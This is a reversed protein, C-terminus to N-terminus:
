VVQRVILKWEDKANADHRYTAEGDTFDATVHDIIWDAPALGPLGAKRLDHLLAEKTGKGEHQGFRHTLTWVFTEM